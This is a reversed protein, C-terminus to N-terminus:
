QISSHAEVWLHKNGIIILTIVLCVGERTLDKTNLEISIKTIASKTWRNM